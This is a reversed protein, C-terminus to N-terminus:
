FEMEVLKNKVLDKYTRSIGFRSGDMMTVESCGIKKIYNKNVIYSKHIQFFNDSLMSKVNDLKGYFEYQKQETHIVIKRGASECYMIEKCSVRVIEKGKKFSFVKDDCLFRMGKQIDKSLAEQSVPKLLFDLPQVQFLEMAYSTKSSIYIIQTIYNHFRERIQKGVEVGGLNEFEIDLLLFDLTKGKEYYKLLEEGCYFGEIEIKQQLENGIIELTKELESIVLRDDDCIGITIM